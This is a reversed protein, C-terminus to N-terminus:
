ILAGKRPLARAEHFANPDDERLAKLDKKVQSAWNSIEENTKNYERYLSWRELIRNGKTVTPEERAEDKREHELYEEIAADSKTMITIRNEYDEKDEGVYPLVYRRGTKKVTTRAKGAHTQKRVKRRHIHLFVAQVDEDEIDTTIEKRNESKRREVTTWEEEKKPSSPNSTSPSVPDERALSAWTAERRTGTDAPEGEEHRRNQGSVTPTQEREEPSDANQIGEISGGKEGSHHETPARTSAGTKDTIIPTDSKPTDGEKTQPPEPTPTNHLDHAPPNGGEHEEVTQKDDQEDDQQNEPSTRPNTPEDTRCAEEGHPAPAEEDSEITILNPAEEASTTAKTAEEDNEGTTTIVHTLTPLNDTHCSRPIETLHGGEKAMEGVWKKM